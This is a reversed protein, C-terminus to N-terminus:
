RPFFYEPGVCPQSMAIAVTASDSQWDGVEALGAPDNRAVPTCAIGDGDTDLWAYVVLGTGGDLPYDIVREFAGLRAPFEVLLELPHRLAGQGAWAQFVRLHVPGSLGDAASLQGRLTIKRTAVPQERTAYYGYATLLLLLALLGLAIRKLWLRIHM